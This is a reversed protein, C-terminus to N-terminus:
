ISLLHSVVSIERERSISMHDLVEAADADAVAESELESALM